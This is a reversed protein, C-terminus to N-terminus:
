IEDWNGAKNKERYRVSFTGKGGEWRDTIM